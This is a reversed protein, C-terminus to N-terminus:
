MRATIPLFREETHGCWKPNHDAHQAVQGPKAGLGPKRDHHVGDDDRVAAGGSNWLVYRECRDSPDGCGCGGVSRERCLIQLNKREILIDCKAHDVVRAM